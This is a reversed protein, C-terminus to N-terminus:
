VLELAPTRTRGVQDRLALYHQGFYFGVIQTFYSDVMNWVMRGEVGDAYSPDLAKSLTDTMGSLSTHVFASTWDNTSPWYGSYHEWFERQMVVLSSYALELATSDVLYPSNHSDGAGDDAFATLIDARCNQKDFVPEKFISCYGTKPTSGLASSHGLWLPLLYFLSSKM